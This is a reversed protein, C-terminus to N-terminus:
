CIAATPLQKASFCACLFSFIFGFPNSYFQVSGRSYEILVSLLSLFQVSDRQLNYKGIDDELLQNLGGVWCAMASHSTIKAWVSEYQERPYTPQRAPYVLAYIVSFIPAACEGDSPKETINTYFWVLCCFIKKLLLGDCFLGDCFLYLQLDCFLWGAFRAASSCWKIPPGSNGLASPFFSFESDKDFFDFM